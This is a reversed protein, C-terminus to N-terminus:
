LISIRCMREMFIRIAELGVKLLGPRQDEPLLTDRLTITIICKRVTQGSILGMSVQSDLGHPLHGHKLHKM